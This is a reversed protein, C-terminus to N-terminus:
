TDVQILELFLFSNEIDDIRSDIKEDIFNGEFKRFALLFSDFKMLIAVWM